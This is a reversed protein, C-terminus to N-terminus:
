DRPMKFESSQLQLRLYKERVMKKSKDTRTVERHSLTKLIETYEYRKYIMTEWAENTLFDVGQWMNITSAWTAPM